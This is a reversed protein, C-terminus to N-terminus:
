WSGPKVTALIESNKKVDEETVTPNTSHIAKFNELPIVGTEGPEPHPNAIRTEGFITHRINLRQSASRSAESVALRALEVRRM